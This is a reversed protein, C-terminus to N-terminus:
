VQLIIGQLPTGGSPPLPHSFSAVLGTADFLAGTLVTPRLYTLCVLPLDSRQSPIRSHVMEVVIPIDVCPRCHGHAVHSHDDRDLRGSDLGCLHSGDGCHSHGAPEIAVHGDDGVCLVMAQPVNLVALSLLLPVFARKNNRWPTLSMGEHFDRPDKLTAGPGARISGAIDNYV